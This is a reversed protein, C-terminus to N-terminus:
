ISIADMRDKLESISKVISSCSETDDISAHWRLVDIGKYYAMCLFREKYDPIVIGRKKSYEALLEPIRLYPKNLDMIAFDLLFDCIGSRSWDPFGVTTQGDTIMNEFFTNNNVLFRQGECYSIRKEMEKFYMEFFERELVTTEFMERWNLWYGERDDAFNDILYDRCTGYGVKCEEDFEGYGEVGSIDSSSVDFIKDFFLEYQEAFQERNLQDAIFGAPTMSVKESLMSKLTNDKSM